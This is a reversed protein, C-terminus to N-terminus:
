TSNWSREQCNDHWQQEGYEDRVDALQTVARLQLKMQCTNMNLFRKVMYELILDRSLENLKGRGGISQTSGDGEKDNPDPATLGKSTV